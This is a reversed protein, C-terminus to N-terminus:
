EQNEETESIEEAIELQVPEQNAAAKAAKAKKKNVILGVIFSIIMAVVIGIALSILISNLLGIRDDTFSIYNPTIYSVTAEKEQVEKSLNTFTEIFGGPGTLENYVQQLKAEYEKTAAIHANNEKGNADYYAEIYENYTNITRECETVKEQWQAITSAADSALSNGDVSDKVSKLIDEYDKLDKKLLELENEYKAISVKWDKLYYQAKAETRLSDLDLREVWANFKQLKSEVLEGAEDTVNALSNYRQNLYNIQSQIYNIQTDYTLAKEFDEKNLYINYDIKIDSYLRTPYRVLETMFSRAIDSNKFATANITIDFTRRLKVVEKDDVMHSELVEINEKFSINGGKLMKDVDIESFTENSAKIKNLVDLSVYDVYYFKSGDPYSYYSDTNNAEPLEVSFEVTYEKNSKNIIYLWLVGVVTVVVAIALALWKQSFIIRFIDGVSIGGEERENEEM